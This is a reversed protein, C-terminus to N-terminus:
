RVDYPLMRLVSWVEEALSCNCHLLSLSPLVTEDLLSVVGSYVQVLTLPPATPAAPLM